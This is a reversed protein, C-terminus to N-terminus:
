LQGGASLTKSIRIAEELRKGDCIAQYGANFAKVSRKDLCRVCEDGEFMSYGSQSKGCTPCNWKKECDPCPGGAEKWIAEQRKGCDYCHWYAFNPNDEVANLEPPIKKRM